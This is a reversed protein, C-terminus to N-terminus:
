HGHCKKDRACYQIASLLGNVMHLPRRCNVFYERARQGMDIYKQRNESIDVLIAELDSDQHYLVGNIGDEINLREGGTIANRTTIFPTGYGMSKLVSLGAQGPSICALSRLFFSALQDEDYIPGHLVVSDNLKKTVIWDKVADYEEGGGIIHLQPMTHYRSAQFYSELLSHIGKQKYLTGVFLLIDRKADMAFDKVEVTNPAVFLKEHAFGAQVYKEIPYDSYFILADARRMFFYRVKDWRKIEDFAKEYGASVGISWFCVRFPRSKYFALRMYSLWHVDGLIILVDYNSAMTYLNDNIYTFPGIKYSRLIKEKFHLGNRNVPKGTHAVTLDVYQGLLNLIPINYESLFNTLRLVRLKKSM